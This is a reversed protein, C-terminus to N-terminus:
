AYSIRMLSQLESTHEESRIPRTQALRGDIQLLREPSSSIVSTDGWRMLGAFPAPNRAQLQAYLDVADCDADIQASWRRSLNVQFVDGAHLYDLIREVGRLYRVPDEERVCSRSSRITAIAPCDAILALLADLQAQGHEAVAYSCGNERDHVIVAPCRVALADPLAFPSRPLQLSPEVVLDSSCVDSSWDSIRMEYATKQKFFFFFFFVVFLM